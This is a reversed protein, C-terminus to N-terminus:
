KQKRTQKRQKRQKRSKRQRAWFGNGSSPKAALQEPTKGTVEAFTKIKRVVNSSQDGSNFQQCAKDASAKTNFYRANKKAVAGIRSKCTAVATATECSTPM